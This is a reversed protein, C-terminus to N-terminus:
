CLPKVGTHVAGDTLIFCPGFFITRDQLQHCLFRLNEEKWEGGAIANSVVRLM